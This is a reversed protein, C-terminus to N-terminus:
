KTYVLTYTGLNGLTATVTKKKYNVKTKTLFWKKKASDYRLVYVKKVKKTLNNVKFTVKTNKSKKGKKDNKIYLRAMSASLKKLKKLKKTVSKDLKEGKLAKAVTKSKSAYAKAIKKKSVVKKSAKVKAKKKTKVSVVVIGKPANATNLAVSPAAHVASMAPTLTMALSLTAAAFNRKLNM